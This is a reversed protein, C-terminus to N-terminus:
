HRDLGSYALISKPYKIWKALDLPNPSITV